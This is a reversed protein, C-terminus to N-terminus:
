VVAIHLAMAGLGLLRYRVERFGAELMMQRLRAARPFDTLSNPLYTYAQADGGILRGIVPVARDFYLQFLQRFIPAGPHTIELCAVRGGPRVVRRMERLARGLDAVNRLLFGNTLADFTADAFPLSLADGQVFHPAPRGRARSKLQAVQLMPYTFDAAVITATPYQRAVALAIDGTGTALDLVRPAPGDLQLERATLQRWAQDRGLTMVRNMLDYRRVIRAFMAQVRAPKDLPNNM